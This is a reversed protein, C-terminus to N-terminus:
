ANAISPLNDPNHTHQPFQTNPAWVNGPGQLSQPWFPSIVKVHSITWSTMRVFLNPAYLPPEFMSSGTFM